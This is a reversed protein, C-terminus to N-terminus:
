EQQEPPSQGPTGRNGARIGPMSSQFFATTEADDGLEAVVREVAARLVANPIGRVATLDLDALDIIESSFVDGSEPAVADTNRSNNGRIEM